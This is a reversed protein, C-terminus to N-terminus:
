PCPRSLWEAMPTGAVLPRLRSAFANPGDPYHILVFDFHMESPMAVARQPDSPHPRAPTAAAFARLWRIGDGNNVSTDAYLDGDAFAALEVSLRAPQDLRPGDPRVRPDVVGGPAAVDLDRYVIEHGNVFLHIRNEVETVEYYMSLLTWDTYRLRVGKPLGVRIDTRKGNDQGVILDSGWFLEDDWQKPRCHGGQIWHQEGNVGAQLVMHRDLHITIYLDAGLLMEEFRFRVHVWLGRRPDVSWTRKMSVTHWKGVPKRRITLVGNDFWANGTAINGYQYIPGTWADPADMDDLCPPPDSPRSEATKRTTVIGASPATQTAPVASLAASTIWGALLLSRLQTPWTM